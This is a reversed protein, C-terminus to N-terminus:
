PLFSKQFQPTLHFTLHLSELLNLISILLHALEVTECYVLAEWYTMLIETLTALWYFLETTMPKINYIFFDFQVTVLIWYDNICKEEKNETVCM